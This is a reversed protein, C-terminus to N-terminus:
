MIGASRKSKSKPAHMLEMEAKQLMEWMIQVDQYECTQVDDHLKLIGKGDKRPKVRSAVAVLAKKVPFVMRRWWAMM